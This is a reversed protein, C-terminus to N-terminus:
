RWGCATALYPFISTQFLQRYAGDARLLRGCAQLIGKRRESRYKWPPLAVLDRFVDCTASQARILRLAERLTERLRGLWGIWRHLTSPWLVRDDLVQSGGAGADYYAARGNIQVGTRYSLDDDAVYRESLRCVVQCVYHKHPVAFDPYLTFTKGCAPCKWRTLASAVARVMRDVIVRFSRQRSAHYKFVAPRQGCTPCREATCSVEGREVAETHAAIAALVPHSVM